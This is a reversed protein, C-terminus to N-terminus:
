RKWPLGGFPFGLRRRATTSIEAVSPTTKWLSSLTVVRGLNRVLSDGRGVNLIKKTCSRNGSTISNNPDFKSMSGLKKEACIYSRSQNLLLEDAAVTKGLLDVNCCCCNWWNLYKCARGNLCIPCGGSPSRNGQQSEFKSRLTWSMSDHEVRCVMPNERDCSVAQILAPSSSCETPLHYIKSSQQYQHFAIM